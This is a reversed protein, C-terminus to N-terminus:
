SVWTTLFYTETGKFEKNMWPKPSWISHLTFGMVLLAFHLRVRPFFGARQLGGAWTLLAQCQESCGARRGAAPGRGMNILLAQCQESCGTLREDNYGYYLWDSSCEWVTICLFFSATRVTLPAPNLCLLSPLSFWLFGKASSYWFRGEWSPKGPSATTLVVVAPPTPEIGPWPVLIGRRPTALFFTKKFIKLLVKERATEM